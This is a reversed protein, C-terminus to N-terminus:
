RRLTELTKRAIERQVDEESDNVDEQALWLAAARERTLTEHLADRTVDDGTAVAVRYSQYVARLRAEDSLHVTPPPPAPARRRPAPAPAPAPAVPEEVPSAATRKATPRVPAPADRRAAWAAVGLLLVAAPPLTLM